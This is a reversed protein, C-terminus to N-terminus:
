PHDCGNKNESLKMIYGDKINKEKTVYTGFSM